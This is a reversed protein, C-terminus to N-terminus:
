TLGMFPPLGPGTPVITFGNKSYFDVLGAVNSEASINGFWVCVGRRRLEIELFAILSSGLGDGRASSEVAILDLESRLDKAKRHDGFPTRNEDRKSSASRHGVLSHLQSSRGREWHAAILPAYSADVDSTTSRNPDIDIGVNRALFNSARDGSRM